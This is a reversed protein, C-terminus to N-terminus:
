FSYQASLVFTRPRIKNTFFSAGPKLESEPLDTQLYKLGVVLPGPLHLSLGLGYRPRSTYGSRNNADAGGTARGWDTGIRINSYLFGIEPDVSLGPFLTIMPAYSVYFGKAGITLPYIEAAGSGTSVSSPATSQGWDEYGATVRLLDTISYGCGVSWYLDHANLESNPVSSRATDVYRSTYKSNIRSQGAGATIFFGTSAQALSASTLIMALMCLIRKM